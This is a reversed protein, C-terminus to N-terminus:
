ARASRTGTALSLRCGVGNAGQGLVYLLANLLALNRISVNGRQRPLGDKIREYQERSIEM